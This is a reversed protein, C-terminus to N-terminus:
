ALWGDKLAKLERRLMERDANATLYQRALDDIAKAALSVMMANTPSHVGSAMRAAVLRLRHTFQAHVRLM